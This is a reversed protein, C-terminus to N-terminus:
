RWHSARHQLEVSTMGKYAEELSGEWDFKFAHGSEQRSDADAREALVDVLALILRQSEDPLAEIRALVVEANM